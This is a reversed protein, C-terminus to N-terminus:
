IVQLKAALVPNGLAGAKSPEDSGKEPIMM